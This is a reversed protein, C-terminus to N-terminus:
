LYSRDFWVSLIRALSERLMRATQKVPENRSDRRGPTRLGELRCRSLGSDALRLGFVTNQKTAKPPHRLSRRRSFAVRQDHSSALAIDRVPKFESVTGVRPLAAFCKLREAWAFQFGFNRFHPLANQFHRGVGIS